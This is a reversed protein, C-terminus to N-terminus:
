ITNENWPTNNFAGNEITKINTKNEFLVNVLQPNNDFYGRKIITVKKGVHLTSIHKLIFKLLSSKNLNLYEDDSKLKYIINKSKLVEELEEWKQNDPEYFYYDGSGDPHLPKYKEINYYNKYEKEWRALFMYDVTIDDFFPSNFFYIPYFPFISETYDICSSYAIINPKNDNIYLYNYRNNVQKSIKVLHKNQIEFYKNDQHLDINKIWM